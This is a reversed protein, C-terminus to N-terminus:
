EKRPEANKGMSKRFFIACTFSSCTSFLVDVQCHFRRIVSFKIAFSRCYLVLHIILIDIKVLADNSNVHLKRVTKNLRRLKTAARNFDSFFPHHTAQLQQQQLILMLILFGPLQACAFLMLLVASLTLCISPQMKRVSLCNGAREVSRFLFQGPDASISGVRM